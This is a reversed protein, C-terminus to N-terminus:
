PAWGREACLRDLRQRRVTMPEDPDILCGAALLVIVAHEPQDLVLGRLERHLASPEHERVAIAIDNMRALADTMLDDRISM